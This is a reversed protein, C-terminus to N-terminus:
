LKEAKKKRKEEDKHREQKADRSVQFDINVFKAANSHSYSECVAM